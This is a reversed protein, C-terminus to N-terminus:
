CKVMRFDFRYLLFFAFENKSPTISEAPRQITSEYGQWTISFERQGQNLTFVMGANAFLGHVQREQGRLSSTVM